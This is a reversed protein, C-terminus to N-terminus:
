PVRTTHTLLIEQQRAWEAILRDDSIQVATEGSLWELVRHYILPAIFLFAAAEPDLKVDNHTALRDLDKAIPALMASFIRQRFQPFREFLSQGERCGILFLEKMDNNERVIFEGISRLFTGLEGPERPNFIDAEALKQDAREYLSELVAVVLDDKTAFYRHVGGSGKRLGVSTEIRAVTTAKIGSEAFLRTAERVIRERTSLTSAADM